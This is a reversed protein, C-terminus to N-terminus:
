HHGIVRSIEQAIRRRFGVYPFIQLVDHSFEAEWQFFALGSLCHANQETQYRCKGPTSGIEKRAEDAPTHSSEVRQEIHLRASEYDEREVEGSSM